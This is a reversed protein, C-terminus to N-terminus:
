QGPQWAPQTGDGAIQILATGDVGVLWLGEGAPALVLKSGDASWSLNWSSKAAVTRAPGGGADMVVVSAHDYEFAIQRGDPSFTPYMRYHDGETLKRVDSGDPGATWIQYGTGDYRTFAIRRGDPSWSPDRGEVIQLQNSGDANMVWVYQLGGSPSERSVAIKQGDPSWVPRQAGPDNPGWRTVQTYGSGDPNVLCVNSAGDASMCQFAIRRGDPSWAPHLEEAPTNTLRRPESGDANMLYLDYKGERNSTYAIRGGGPLPSPTPTPAPLPTDTPLPTATPEPSSTATRAIPTNTAPPLPTPSTTETSGPAQTPAPLQSSAGPPVPTVVVVIVPQTAEQKMPGARDAGGGLLLLLGAVTVLLSFVGGAVLWLWAPLRRRRKAPQQRSRERAMEPPPVPTEVTQRLLVARLSSASTYRDEPRKALARLVVRDLWAPVSRNHTSPPRPPESRIRYVNDAQAGPTERQDFELYPRGALMRYLVAGLAYIDIRPDNRTGDAQEPSMYPLTGAVFGAPTMWTRTLTEGSIHAIGFDAVKASGMATFLINAPKLDCHVVGREHAYSLGNCVEAAVRVAELVPLNGRAQLQAELSGGPMYEMVIYYNDRESFVNHTRVIHDHALRMTAKADALFRKLMDADGVLAPILEKIAVQEGLLMDHALYVFGFGGRGLQRVIRYQGNLLTDGPHLAM